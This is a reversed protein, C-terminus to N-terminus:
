DTEDLIKKSTFNNEKIWPYGQKYVNGYGKSITSTKLFYKFRPQNQSKLAFKFYSTIQHYNELDKKQGPRSM